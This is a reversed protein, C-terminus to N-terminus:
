YYDESYVQRILLSVGFFLSVLNHIWLIHIYITIDTTLMWVLKKIHMKWISLTSTNGTSLVHQASLNIHNRNPLGHMCCEWWRHFLNWRWVHCVQWRKNWIWVWLSHFYDWTHVVAWIYLNSVSLDFVILEFNSKIRFEFNNQWERNHKFHVTLEFEM